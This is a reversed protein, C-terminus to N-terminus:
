SDKTDKSISANPCKKCRTEIVKKSVKARQAIQRISKGRARESCVFIQLRDIQTLLLFKPWDLLALERLQEDLAPFSVETVTIKNSM